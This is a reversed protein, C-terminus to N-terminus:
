SQAPPNPCTANDHWTAYPASKYPSVLMLHKGGSQAFATNVNAGLTLALLVLALKKTM